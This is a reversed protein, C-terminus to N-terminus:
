RVPKVSTLKERNPKKKKKIFPVSRKKGERERGERGEKGAGFPNNDQLCIYICIRYVCVSVCVSVCMYIYIYKTKKLVRGRAKMEREREM